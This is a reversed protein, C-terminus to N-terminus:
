KQIMLVLEYTRKSYRQWLMFMVQQFLAAMVTGIGMLIPPIISYVGTEGVYFGVLELPIFWLYGIALRISTMIAETWMKEPGVEKRHLVFNIGLYASIIIVALSLASLVGAPYYVFHEDVGRLFQLLAYPLSFFLSYVTYIAEKGFYVMKDKWTPRQTFFAAGWMAIVSLGFRFLIQAPASFEFGVAGITGAKIDFMPVGLAVCSMIAWVCHLIFYDFGGFVGITYGLGVM